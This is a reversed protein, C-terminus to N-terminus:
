RGGGSPMAQTSTGASDVIVGVLDLATLSATPRVSARVTGDAGTRVSTVVGVSLGAIYSTAGSPGTELSDGVEIQAHPRLPVFQLGSGGAGTSVGIEGNRSDRAGVGSGPDAALLVVSSSADAHLVRGVLGAGDTVTEGTRVGDSSGVDLTVTWDFGSGPGYAVVRAPLVTYNSGDAARQLKALAASTRTDAVRGALKGRLVANEHRLREITAENSGAHPLGEVWRRVPGLVADTGRYLSGLSGRVGTHADQLGRGGLDLTIFGLAVIALVAAAIRQRRTLQRM